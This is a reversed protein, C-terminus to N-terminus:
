MIVKIRNSIRTRDKKVLKLERGLHRLDEAEVSPVAVVAFPPKASGALYRALLDVLWNTVSKALPALHHHSAPRAHATGPLAQLLCAAVARTMPDPLPPPRALRLLKLTSVSQSTLSM